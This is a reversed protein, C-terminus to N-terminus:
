SLIYNMNYSFFITIVIILVTFLLLFWLGYFITKEHLLYKYLIRKDTLARLTSM